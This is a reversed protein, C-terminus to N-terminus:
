SFPGAKSQTECSLQLPVGGFGCFVLGFVFLCCEEGGFIISRCGGGALFGSSFFRTLNAGITNKRLVTATAMRRWLCKDGGGGSLLSVKMVFHSLAWARAGKDYRIADPSRLGPKV